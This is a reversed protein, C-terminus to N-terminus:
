GTRGPPDWALRSVYDKWGNRPREPSRRGTSRTGFVKDPLRGLPMMVLHGFWRIQSREARLLLPEVGFEEQIASSRVKDRHSLRAVRRLFGIEDAQVWLRMEAVVWLKHGFTLTPVFFSRSQEKVMISWHPTRVLCFVRLM